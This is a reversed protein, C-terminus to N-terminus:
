DSYVSLNAALSTLFQQDQASPDTRDAGGIWVLEVVDGRQVFYEHDNAAYDAVDADAGSPTRYTHLWSYGSTTRATQVIKITIPNGSLDAIPEHCDAYDGEVTSLDAQAAATSSFFFLIQSGADKNGSQGSTFGIEQYGITGPLYGTCTAFWQQGDTTSINPTRTQATWKETSDFPFQSLSTWAGPVVTNVNGIVAPTTADSATSTTSPAPAASTTSPAPATPGLNPPSTQSSQCAASSLLTATALAALSIRRATFSAPKGSM